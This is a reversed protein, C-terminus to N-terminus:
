MWSKMVGHLGRGPERTWPMRWASYQLPNGNGGGLSRESGPILCTDRVDGANSLKKPKKKKKKVVFAVSDAIHIAIDGGEQAERRGSWEM